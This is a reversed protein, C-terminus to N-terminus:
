EARTQLRAELAARFAGATKYQKTEDMLAAARCAKAALKAHRHRVADIQKRTFLGRRLAEEVAKRLQSRDVRGTRTVDAITRLPRTARVGHM